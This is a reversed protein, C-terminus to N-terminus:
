INYEKFLHRQPVFDGFYEKEAKLRAIIAEEKIKFTKTFIRKENLNLYAVWKGNKTQSVGAIGSTNNSQISKNIMNLKHSCVRLNSKRNNLPNKDIHDVETSNSDYKDVNMLYRHLRLKSKRGKVSAVVYGSDNLTWKYKKVKQIDDLDIIARAVEKLNKDYLAIEAYDSHIIIENKDKRTRELIKGTREVQRRHKNCLNKNVISNFQVKYNSGCIECEKNKNNEKQCLKCITDSFTNYFSEITTNQIISSHTNCIFDIKDKQTKIENTLLTCNMEKFDSKLKEITLTPTCKSCYYRGNKKINILYTKYKINNKIKGCKECQTNVKIGNPSYIDEIKINIEDGMKTFTYGKKILHEVNCTNWKVKVYKTLLM